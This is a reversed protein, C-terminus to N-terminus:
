QAAAMERLHAQYWEEAVDYSDGWTAGNDQHIQAKRLYRQAVWSFGHRAALNDASDTERPDVEIGALAFVAGVMCPSTARPDDEAFMDPRPAYYCALGNADKPAYRFDRGKEEVVRRLLERTEKIDM